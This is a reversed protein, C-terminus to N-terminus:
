ECERGGASPAGAALTSRKTRLIAMLRDPPKTKTVFADAGASRAASEAEPHVSLVIIEPLGELTKLEALVDAGPQDPLEWDLLVVDPKSAAVQDVLGRARVAIGVVVVGAEQHLLMLLGMRLERNADAIFLRM